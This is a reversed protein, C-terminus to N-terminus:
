GVRRVRQNMDGSQDAPIDGRAPPAEVGLLDLERVSGDPSLLQIRTGAMVDNVIKEYLTLARRMVETDTSAETIERLSAIRDITRQTFVVNRRLLPEKSGTRM